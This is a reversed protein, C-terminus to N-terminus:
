AMTSWSLHTGIKRNQTCAAYAQGFSISGDGAPLKQHTFFNLKNKQVIEKIATTIQQNYAVGGSFGINKTGVCNAQQIALQALGRALYLQASYALDAPSHKNRQEFVEKILGTTNLTNGEIRPELKLSDKGKIAASELKMAPEGEYTRENCVGLVVAIADLIRGCSTTGTPINGKRLQALIIEAEARGHPLMMSSELLWEEIDTAKHLIGAAIRIPYRTALDGGLM